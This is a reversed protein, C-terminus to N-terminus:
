GELKALREEISDLRNVTDQLVYSIIGIFEEYRLSYIYEPNGDEDIVNETHDIDGNEDLIDVTKIDKCFGAFDLSSMGLEGMAKEVDQSIFGIHTRGSTGDKFTFSVPILKMFFQKHINTLEKIDNKENRDSTSITANSSYIQGWLKNSTGLIVGKSEAPYLNTGHFSIQQSESHFYLATKVTGDNIHTNDSSNIGILITSGGSSTKSHLYTNNAMTLNGTLAGGTLPLFYKVVWNYVANSQILATSSSSPYSSTTAYTAAAGLGLNTRAGAATTAGTGGESISLTSTWNYWKSNVYTRSKIKGTNYEVAFQVNTCSPFVFLYYFTGTFAHTGEVYRSDTTVSTVWYSGASYNGPVVDMNQKWDGNYKLGNITSADHTHSSAAKNNLQTQINSTVGDVYNLETTTATIGDLVNLETASATVGTLGDATEAHKVSQNAINDINIATSSDQKNDIVEKTTKFTETDYLLQSATSAGNGSYDIGNIITKGM